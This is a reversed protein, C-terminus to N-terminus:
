CGEPCTLWDVKRSVGMSMPVHLYGINSLKALSQIHLRSQTDLRSLHSLLYFIDM